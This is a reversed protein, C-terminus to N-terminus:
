KHLFCVMLSYRLGRCLHNYISKLNLLHAAGGGGGLVQYLRAKISEVRQFSPFTEYLTCLTVRREREVAIDHLLSSLVIYYVLERVVM